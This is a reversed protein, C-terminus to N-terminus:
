ESVAMQTELTDNIASVLDLANGEYHLSLRYDDANEPINVVEVGYVEKIKSVVILLPTNEFDIVKVVETPKVTEVVAAEHADNLQYHHYIVAAAASLFALGGIAAAIRYGRRFSASVAPSLRHWANNVNFCGKRYHRAIYQIDQMESRNDM